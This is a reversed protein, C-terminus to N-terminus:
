DGLERLLARANESVEITRPAPMNVQDMLRAFNRVCEILRARDRELTACLEAGVAYTRKAGGEVPFPFKAADTLPTGTKATM